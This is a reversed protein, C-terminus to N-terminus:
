RVGGLSRRLAAEFAQMDLGGSIYNPGVNMNQNVQSRPTVTLMEGPELNLLYPRDGSGRGPVIVTGGHQFGGIGTVGQEHLGSTSAIAAEISRRLADYAAETNHAEKALAILHQSLGKDGAMFAETAATILQQESLDQYSSTADGAASATELISDRLGRMRGEWSGTAVASADITPPLGSLIRSVADWGRKSGELFTINGSLVENINTLAATLIPAAELGVTNKLGTWTDSLADLAMRAEETKQVEAETVVLGDAVAAAAERIADGGKQLLPDLAAWNKGFVQAAAAARETPDKIGRLRDALAAITEVSPALGRKTAMTLATEMEQMSIGVDDAVQVLRSYEDTSIGVARASDLISKNYRIVSGVTADLAKQTAYIGATVAGLAVGATSLGAKLNALAGGAKKTPGSLQDIARLIIQVEAM